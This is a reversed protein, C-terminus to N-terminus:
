GCTQPNDEKIKPLTNYKVYNEWRIRENKQNTESIEKEFGDIKKELKRV